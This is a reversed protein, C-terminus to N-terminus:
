QIIEPKSSRGMNLLDINGEKLTLFFQKFARCPYIFAPEDKDPTLSAHRHRSCSKTLYHKNGGKSSSSASEERQYQMKSDSPSLFGKVKRGENKLNPKPSATDRASSHANTSALAINNPYAGHTLGQSTTNQSM